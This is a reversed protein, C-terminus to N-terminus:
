AAQWQAALAVAAAQALMDADGASAALWDVLCTHKGDLVLDPQRVTLLRHLALPHISSSLHALVHDLYPVIGSSTFQAAPLRRGGRVGPNFAWLKRQSVLQRIRASSVGIREAAEAVSLATAVVDQVTSQSSLLSSVAATPDDSLGADDLVEAESTALPPNAPGTVTAVADLLDVLFSRSYAVGTAATLAQEFDIEGRLYEERLSADLSPVLVV